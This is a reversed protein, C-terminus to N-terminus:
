GFIRGALLLVSYTCLNTIAVTALLRRPRPYSPSLSLVLFPEAVLLILLGTLAGPWWPSAGTPAYTAVMVIPVAVAGLGLSLLNAWLSAFFAQRWPFGLMRRYVGAEIFVIALEAASLLAIGVLLAFGAALAIGRPLDAIPDASAPSTLLLVGAVAARASATRRACGNPRAPM